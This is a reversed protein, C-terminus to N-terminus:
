RNRAYEFEDINIIKIYQALANKIGLEFALRNYHERFLSPQATARLLSTLASTTLIPSGHNLIVASALCCPIM